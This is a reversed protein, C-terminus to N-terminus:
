YTLRIKGSIGTSQGTGDPGCLLEIELSQLQAKKM